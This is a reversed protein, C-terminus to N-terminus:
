SVKPYQRQKIAISKNIPPIEVFCLVIVKLPKIQRAREKVM